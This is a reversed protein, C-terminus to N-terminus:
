GAKRPQVPPADPTHLPKGLMARLIHQDTVAPRELERKRQEHLVHALNRLMQRDDSKADAM